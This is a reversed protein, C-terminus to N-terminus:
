NRLSSLLKHNHIASFGPIQVYSNKPTVLFMTGMLIRQLALRMDTLTGSPAMFEFINEIKYSYIWSRLTGFCIRALEMETVGFGLFKDRM